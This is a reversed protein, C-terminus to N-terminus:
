EVESIVWHTEKEVEGMIETTCVSPAAKKFHQTKYNEQAEVINKNSGRM